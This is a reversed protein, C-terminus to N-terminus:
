DGKEPEPTDWISSKEPEQYDSIAKIAGNFTNLLSTLRESNEKLKTFRIIGNLMVEFQLARRWGSVFEGITQSDHLPIGFDKRYKEMWDRGVYPNQADRIKILAQIHMKAVQELHPLMVDIARKEDVSHLATFYSTDAVQYIRKSHLVCEFIYGFTNIVYRALSRGRPTVYILFSNQIDEPKQIILPGDPSQIEIFHTRVQDDHYLSSMVKLLADRKFVLGELKELVQAVQPVKYQHPDHTAYRLTLNWTATVLLHEVTCGIREEPSELWANKDAIVDYFGITNEGFYSRRMWALYETTVGRIGYTGFDPFTTPHSRNESLRQHREIASRLLSALFECHHELIVRISNNALYPEQIAEWVSLIVKSLTIINDYTSREISVMYPKGSVSHRKGSVLEAHREFAYDLRKRIIQGIEELNIKSLQLAPVEDRKENFLRVYTQYPPAQFEDYEFQKFVNRDRVPLIINAIQSISASLGKIM